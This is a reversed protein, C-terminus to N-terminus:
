DTRGGPRDAGNVGGTDKRKSSPGGQGDVGAAKERPGSVQTSAGTLKPDPNAPQPIVAPEVFAPAPKSGDPQPIVEPEVVPPVPESGDPQTPGQAVVTGAVTAALAAAGIAIWLRRRGKPSGAPAARSM